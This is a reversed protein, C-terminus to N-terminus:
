DVYMVYSFSTLHEWAATASGFGGSFSCLWCYSCAPRELSELGIIQLLSHIVLWHVIILVSKEKAQPTM